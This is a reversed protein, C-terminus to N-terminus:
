GRREYQERIKSLPTPKFYLDREVHLGLSGTVQELERLSFDGLEFEMGSVAGFFTDRGDFERQDKLNM